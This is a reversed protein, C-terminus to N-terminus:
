KLHKRAITDNTNACVSENKAKRKCKSGTQAVDESLTLLAAFRLCVFSSHAGRFRM